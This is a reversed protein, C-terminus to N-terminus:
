GTPDAAGPVGGTRGQQQGLQSLAPPPQAGPPATGTGRGRAGQLGGGLSPSGQPVGVEVLLGGAGSGRGGDGPACCGPPATDSTPACASGGSGAKEGWGGRSPGPVTAGAGPPPEQTMPCGGPPRCPQPAGVAPPPQVVEAVFSGEAAGHGWPQEKDGPSRQTGLAPGLVRPGAPAAAGPLGRHPSDRLTAWPPPQGM